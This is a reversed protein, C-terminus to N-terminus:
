AETGSAKDSFEEGNAETSDIEKTGIEEGYNAGTIAGVQRM